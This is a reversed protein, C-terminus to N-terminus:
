KNLKPSDFSLFTKKSKKFQKWHTTHATFGVCGTTPVSGFRGLGLDIIFESIGPNHAFLIVSQVTDELQSLVDYFVFDPAHYLESKFLIKEKEYHFVDAFIQATSKARKAPSSMFLDFHPHKAVVHTAVLLSNEMGAETLKREFDSGLFDQEAKSHRTVFVTKM